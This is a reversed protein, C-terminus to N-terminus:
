IPKLNKKYSTYSITKGRIKMLLTELFLQDNITFQIDSNPISHVNELNYIPVMYETKVDDILKNIM